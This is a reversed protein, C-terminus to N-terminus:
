VPEKFGHGFCKLCLLERRPVFVRFGAGCVPCQRESESPLGSPEIRRWDLALEVLSLVAELIAKRPMKSSGRHRDRFHIPVETIALGLRALHAVCIMFFSYGNGNVSEVVGPPVRDLRAARLATTYETVPLRLALGALRNGAGSLFRRWGRYDTRGGSCFRSGIAFDAGADLAALLRPVDDPDHSLDADLTAIRSYGHVRAYLWGLKHASGVGLKGPRVIVRVRPGVSALWLLYETTGDTSRDDVFLLDCKLPLGLLADALEGITGRENFVPAFILTDNEM